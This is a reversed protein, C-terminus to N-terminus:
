LALELIICCQEEEDQNKSTITGFYSLFLIYLNISKTSSLHFLFYEFQFQHTIKSVTSFSVITSQSLYMYDMVIEM